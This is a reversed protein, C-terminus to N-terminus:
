FFLETRVTKKNGVKDEIEILLKNKKPNASKTIDFFILDNKEDYYLIQWKENLYANYSKIGSELDKIGFEIRNNKIVPDSVFPPSDDKIFEITGFSKLGKVVFTSDTWFLPITKKKTKSNLVAIYKEWDCQLCFYDRRFAVSYPKMCPTNEEFLSLYPTSDVKIKLSHNWIQNYPFTNQPLDIEYYKSQISNENECEIELDYAPPKPSSYEAKPIYLIRLEVFHENKQFDAIELKIKKTEYPNFVLFGNSKNEFINNGCKENFLKYCDKIQNYAYESVTKVQSTNSFSISDFQIQFLPNFGESLKAAYIGMVNNKDTYYDKASIALGIQEADVTISKERQNIDIEKIFKPINNSLDYIYIKPMLPPMRDEIQKFFSEPNYAVETKTNRIEFHLHPAFSNGTNGSLGIQEGRKIWITPKSFTTDLTNVKLNQQIATLLFDIKPSFSNFHAYLTTLGLKPHTIYVAKGYGSSSIVIRSVYGEAATYIPLNEVGNTRFDIGTHFHSGRLECFNGAIGIENKIPLDLLQANSCIVLTTFLFTLYFKARKM